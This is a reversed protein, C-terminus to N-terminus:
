QHIHVRKALSNLIKENTIHLLQGVIPSDHIVVLWTSKKWCKSREIFPICHFMFFGINILVDFISRPFDILPSLRLWLLADRSFFAMGSVKTMRIIWYVLLIWYIDTRKSDAGKDRTKERNRERGQVRAGIMNFNKETLLLVLQSWSAESCISVVKNSICWQWNVLFSDHAWCM